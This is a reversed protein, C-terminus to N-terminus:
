KDNRVKNILENTIKNDITRYREVALPIISILNDYEDVASSFSNILEDMNKRYYEYGRGRWGKNREMYDTMEKFNRNITWDIGDKIEEFKKYKDIVNNYNIKM